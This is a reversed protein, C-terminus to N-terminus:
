KNLKFTNSVRKDSFYETIERQTKAKEDASNAKEKKCCYVGQTTLSADVKTTM